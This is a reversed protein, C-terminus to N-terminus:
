AAPLEVIFESGKGAGGSEVWIRGKHAEVVQKAIYLGYGTSDVNVSTSKKGKGGQTFLRHKDENTIGVGTDKVSFRIHKESKALQVTISGSPTYRVANDILNRVVHRRLKAEDGTIDYAAGDVVCELKLGKKEAIPKLERVIEELAKKFDFASVDYDVTGKRFNSAELIDSVMEVGKRIDNLGANAMNELSKDLRGYDGQAMGSFAAESKAFYGKVEHSIFHLLSEQQRNVVELEAEQAEILLKQRVDRSIVRVLAYGIIGTLIFTAMAVGRFVSVDQVFMLSFSLVILALVLAVSGILSLNFTKFRVISYVLFATFLPMGFLGYQALQWDGTLSGTVNGWAFAILFLIIGITLTVIEWRRKTDTAARYRNAAYILIWLVFIVEILYSYYSLYTENALCNTLDFSSLVYETPVLLVLPLFLIAWGLLTDFHPARKDILLYMLLLCGIYVIPEILIQLSWMFMIVDARNTAWIISDFFVWLTFVFLTVFLTQNPLSKASQYLIYGAFLLSIAIIPLHSYYQLPGVNPGFVLFQGAAFDCVQMAHEIM